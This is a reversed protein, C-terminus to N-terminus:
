IGVSLWRMAVADPGIIKELEMNLQVIESKLKKANMISSIMSESLEILTEIKTVGFQNPLISSSGNFRNIIIPVGLSLAELHSFSAPENRSNLIYIDSNQISWRTEETTWNIYVEIQDTNRLDYKDILYNLFEKHNDNLVQLHIKLKLNSDIQNSISQFIEILLDLGKRPECKAVTIFSLFSNQKVVNRNKVKTDFEIKPIPLPIYGINQRLVKRLNEGYESIHAFYNDSSDFSTLVQTFYKIRLVRKILFKWLIHHFKPNYIPYQTYIVCNNRVGLAILSILISIGISSVECRAFYINPANRNVNTRLNQYLFRSQKFTRGFKDYKPMDVIKLNNQAKRIEAFSRRFNHIEVQYGLELYQKVIPEM